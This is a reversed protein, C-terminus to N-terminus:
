KETGEPGTEAALKHAHMIHESLMKDAGMGRQHAREAEAKIADSELRMKELTVDAQRDLDRNQDDAAARAQQFQLQQAKLALEQEKYPDQQPALGGAQAPQQQAKAMDAQARIMDTEAKSKAAFAKTDLDQKKLGLEAQAKQMEPPMKGQAEPPAMFQEPNNWGIAQLAAKDIAIPDYMTPNSAQLQKLAMIKMVRQAHSATNPDAQPVLLGDVYELAQLFTQEDWPFAPRRNTQWFSEPNEKFCRVLLTFEAAQAAHM